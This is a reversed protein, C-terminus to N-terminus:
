KRLSTHGDGSHHTSHELEEDVMVNLLYCKPTVLSLPRRYSISMIWREYRVLSTGYSQGGPGESAADIKNLEDM